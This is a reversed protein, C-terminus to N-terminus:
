RPDCQFGDADPKAFCVFKLSVSVMQVRKGIACPPEEGNACSWSEGKTNEGM